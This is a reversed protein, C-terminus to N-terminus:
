AAFIAESVHGGAAIVTERRWESSVAILWVVFVVAILALTRPNRRFLWALYGLGGAILVALSTRFEGYNTFGGGYVFDFAPLAPHGVTWAVIAHGLEHVLTVLATFLGRTLPIVHAIIAAALGGGIIKLEYASVHGDAVEDDDM